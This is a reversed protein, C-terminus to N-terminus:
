AKLVFYDQPTFQEIARDRDVVLKLTPTQVRGVSLVSNVGYLSSAAMTMNMGILWDARQRGLGADYLKETEHGPRIQKLAKQISADDLASLWLRDIKGNYQCARLIERAIVEGERDADTAIVVHKTNKLLHKIVSFQKQTRRSVLMKWQTPVIPLKEFRWPKVNANYHEPPALELLHGVCWTVQYGNGAFYGENRANANLNRAIDRAQSPKECIYLITTM